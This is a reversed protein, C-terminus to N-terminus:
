HSMRATPNGSYRRRDPMFLVFAAAGLLLIPSAVGFLLSPVTENSRSFIGYMPTRGTYRMAGRLCLLPYVLFQRSLDEPIYYSQTEGYVIETGLSWSCFWFHLILSVIVAVSVVVVKQARNM